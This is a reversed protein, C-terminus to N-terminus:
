VGGSGYSGGSGGSGQSGGPDLPRRRTGFAATLRAETAQVDRRVKEAEARDHVPMAHVYLLPREIELVMSGPRLSVSNTILILLVDSTTRYEVTIIGSRVSAPGRLAYWGVVVSSVVLDVVFAVAARTLAIPHVRGPLPLAPFRTVLYTGYAVLLGGLVGAADIRGWLGLWVLLLWVGMALRPASIM